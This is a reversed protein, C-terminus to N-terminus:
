IPDAMFDQLAEASVRWDRGVKIAPLEEAQIMKRGQQRSTKLIAAVEKVSYVELGGDMM